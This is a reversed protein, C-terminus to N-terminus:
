PYLPASPNFHSGLFSRAFQIPNLKEGGKKKKKDGVVSYIKTARSEKVPPSIWYPVDVYPRKSPSVHRIWGNRGPPNGSLTGCFLGSKRTVPGTNLCETHFWQTRDPFAQIRWCRIEIPHSILITLWSLKFLISQERLYFHFPGFTANIM